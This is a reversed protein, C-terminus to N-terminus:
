FERTVDRETAVRAQRILKRRRVKDRHKQKLSKGGKHKKSGPHGSVLQERYDNRHSM